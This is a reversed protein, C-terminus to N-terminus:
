SRRESIEKALAVWDLLRQPNGNTTPVEQLVIARHCGRTLTMGEELHRRAGALDPAFIVDSAKQRWVICHRDGCKSAAAELDTWPSNVFIRLNPISLVTDIRDTLDECCGYSVHKFRRMIPKQYELCFEQWMDPSVGQFQQSETRFWLDGIRVPVDAPTTKLSDSFHIQADNNETLIGMAEVEDLSKLVSDRLFAMLRHIFEPRHAMDLLLADLGILDSANRGLGPFLPPLASMRVPLIDAFLEGYFTLRRGTEARDHQWAPTRLRELDDPSRIPPDYRWAGNRVDPRDFKVAVGWLHEGMHSIVAPVTWYPLVIADDGFDAHLLSRRLQAEISRCLPDQCVLSDEPIFERWVPQDPNLWVPARDAKRLMYTDRWRQQALRQEPSNAIEAYRRALDRVCDRDRGNPM